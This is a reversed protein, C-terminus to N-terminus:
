VHLSLWEWLIMTHRFDSLPSPFAHPNTIYYNVTLHWYGRTNSLYASALHPLCAGLVRMGDMGEKLWADTYGSPRDKELDLWFFDLSCGLTNAFSCSPPSTLRVWFRMWLVIPGCSCGHQMGTGCTVCHNGSHRYNFVNFSIFTIWKILFVAAHKAYFVCAWKWDHKPCKRDMTM